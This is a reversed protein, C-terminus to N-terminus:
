IEPSLKKRVRTTFSFTHAFHVILREELMREWRSAKTKYPSELLAGTVFTNHELIVDITIEWYGRYKCQEFPCNWINSSIRYRRFNVPHGSLLCLFCVYNNPELLSWYPFISGPARTKETERVEYLQSDMYCSVQESMRFASCKMKDHIKRRKKISFRAQFKVNLAMQM